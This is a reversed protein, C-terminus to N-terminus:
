GGRSVVKSIKQEHHKKKFFVDTYDRSKTRGPKM